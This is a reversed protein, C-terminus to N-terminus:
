HGGTVRDPVPKAREFRHAFPLVVLFFFFYYVEGVQAIHKLVETAEQTGLYGLM